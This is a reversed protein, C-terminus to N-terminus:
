RGKAKARRLGGWALFGGTKAPIKAPIRKGVRPFTEM